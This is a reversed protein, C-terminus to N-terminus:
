DKAGVKSEDAVGVPPLKAGTTQAMAEREVQRRMQEMVSAAYQAQQVDEHPPLWRGVDVKKTVTQRAVCTGARCADCNSNREPHLKETQEIQVEDGEYGVIQIGYATDPDSSRRPHEHQMYQFCPKIRVKATNNVRYVRAVAVNQPRQGKFAFICAGWFPCGM